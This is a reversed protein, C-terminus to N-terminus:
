IERKEEFIFDTVIKEAELLTQDLSDNVLIYDFQDAFSLEYTAKSLRKKLSTADESSRKRIRKKLDEISPPQVFVALTKDNFTKKVNLGGVVDIDFIINNGKNWIREVESRLTGYYQNNYVEEWELFANEAIKQKFEEASLFYYQEGHTEGNRPPRSTASVSFELRLEKKKLLHRIITTKGAGSPASFIIIKPAIM